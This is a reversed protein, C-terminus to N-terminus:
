KSWPGEAALAHAWEVISQRAHYTHNGPTKTLIDNPDIFDNAYARPQAASMTSFFLIYTCAHLLSIRPM